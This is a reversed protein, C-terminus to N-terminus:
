DEGAALRGFLGLCADAVRQASGKAPALRVGDRHAWRWYTDTEYGARDIEEDTGIYGFLGNTDGCIVTHAHPSHERLYRSTEAFNEGPSLAAYVDGIRVAGVTLALVQRPSEGAALMRLCEECYRINVEVARKKQDADFFEPLNLGGVWCAHPYEDLEQQFARRITIEHELEQRTYMPRCELEITQWEFRFPLGRVPVRHNLGIRAADALRIGLLRAQESGCFMYYNHVNGCFGQIFMAPAGDSMEEIRARATGVYDPSVLTNDLLTAPHCAFSFITGLPGGDEQEFRLLSVTKDFFCGGQLAEAYNRSFKVGGSQMPLRSNYSINDCQSIGASVRVPRLSDLADRAANVCGALFRQHEAECFATDWTGRQMISSGGGEHAFGAYSGSAHTQSTSWVIQDVSLGIADAVHRRMQLTASCSLGTLDHSFWLLTTGDSNLALCRSQLPLDVEKMTPTTGWAGYQPHIRPTADFGTMSARLKSM